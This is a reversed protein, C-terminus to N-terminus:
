FIFKGSSQNKESPDQDSQDHSIVEQEGHLSSELIEQSDDSHSQQTQPTDLAEDWVGSQDTDRALTHINRHCIVLPIRPYIMLPNTLPAALHTWAVMMLPTRAVHNTKM